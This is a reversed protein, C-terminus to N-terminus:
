LSSLGSLVQWAEAQREMFAPLSVMGLALENVSNALGRAREDGEERGGGEGMAGGGEGGRELEGGAVLRARLWDLRSEGGDRGAVAEEMAREDDEDAVQRAVQSVKGLKSLFPRLYAPCERPSILRPSSHGLHVVRVGEPSVRSLAVELIALSTAAFFVRSAWGPGRATLALLSPNTVVVDGLASYLTERVVSLNEAHEDTTPSLASAPESPDLPIKDVGTQTGDLTAYRPPPQYQM